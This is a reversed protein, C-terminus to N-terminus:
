FIIHEYTRHLRGDGKRYHAHGFMGEGMAEYFQYFAYARYFDEASAVNLLLPGVRSADDDIPLGLPGMLQVLMVIFTAMKRADKSVKAPAIGWTPHSEDLPIKLDTRIDNATVLDEDAINRYLGPM